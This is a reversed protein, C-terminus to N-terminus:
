LIMAAVLGAAAFALFPNEGPDRSTINLIAVTCIACALLLCAFQVTRANRDRGRDGTPRAYFWSAYFWSAYFRSPSDQEKNLLSMERPFTSVPFSRRGVKSSFSPYSCPYRM